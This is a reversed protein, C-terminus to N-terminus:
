STCRDWHAGQAHLDDWLVSPLWRLRPWGAHPALHRAFPARTRRPGGRHGWRRPHGPKKGQVLTQGVPVEQLDNLHRHRHTGRPLAGPGQAVICLPQGNDSVAVWGHVGAGPGSGSNHLGSRGWPGGVNRFDISQQRSPTALGHHARGTHRPGGGQELDWVVKHRCHRRVHRRTGYM